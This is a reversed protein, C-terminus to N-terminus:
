AWFRAGRIGAPVTEERTRYGGEGPGKRRIWCSTKNRVMRKVWSGGNGQTWRFNTSM